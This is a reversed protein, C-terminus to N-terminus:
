YIYIGCVKYKVKSDFKIKIKRFEVDEVTSEREVAQAACTDLKDNQFSKFNCLRISFCILM